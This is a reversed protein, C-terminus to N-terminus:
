KECKKTTELNDNHSCDNSEEEIIKNECDCSTKKIINDCENKSKNDPRVFLNNRVKEWANHKKLTDKIVNIDLNLQETIGLSFCGDLPIMRGLGEYMYPILGGTNNSPKNCPVSPPSPTIQDTNKKYQKQLRENLDTLEFVLSGNLVSNGYKQRWEELITKNHEDMELIDDNIIENSDNNANQEDIYEELTKGLDYNVIYRNLFRKLDDVIDQKNSYLGSQELLVKMRTYYKFTPQDPFLFNIMSVEPQYQAMTFRPDKIETLEVKATGSLQNEGSYSSLIAIRSNLLYIHLLIGEISAELERALAENQLSRFYYQTADTRIIRMADSIFNIQILVESNNAYIKRQEEFFTLIDSYTKRLDIDLPNETFPIFFKNTIHEMQKTFLNIHESLNKPCCMKAIKMIHGTRLERTYCSLGTASRTNIRKPM